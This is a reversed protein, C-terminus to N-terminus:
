SSTAPTTASECSLPLSVGPATSSGGASRRRGSLSPTWGASSTRISKVQLFAEAGYLSGKALGGYWPWVSIDAVTCDEGALYESEALCRKVYMAYRAIAYEIKGLAYAHFRGFGCGLYPATGMQWFLRSLCEARSAPETLLFAWYKEALHMLIAGSKFVRVPTPGSRDLLAPTKLNPNVAVFGSGFQDGENIRILWADYEAGTHGQALSEELM